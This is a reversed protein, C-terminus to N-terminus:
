VVNLSFVVAVGSVALVCNSVSLVVLMVIEGVFVYEAVVVLVFPVVVIGDSLVMDGVGAVVVDFIVFLCDGLSLV